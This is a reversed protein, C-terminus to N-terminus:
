SKAVGGIAPPLEDDQTNEDDNLANFGERPADVDTDGANDNVADERVPTGTGDRQATKGATAADDVVKAQRQRSAALEANFEVPKAAVKELLDPVLREAFGALFGAILVFLPSGREAFKFTVVEGEILAILVSGAIAGIVVRLMADMMNATRLLDPLVTRGRIALAISFFAGVAGAAAGRWMLVGYGYDADVPTLETAPWILIAVVPIAIIAFLLGGRAAPHSDKTTWVGVGITAALALLILGAERMREAWGDPGRSFPLLSALLWAAFMGALAAAFATLLYEFRAWAVRENLIDGKIKELLVQAGPPDEELAQILAGGVRRDSCEAKAHLRDPSSLGFFGRGEATRWGQVLGDIEDRLPTLPALERRQKLADDPDDAFHILVGRDATKYVAYYPPKRWYLKCILDGNIDKGDRRVDAVTAAPDDDAM